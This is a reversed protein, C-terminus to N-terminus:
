IPVGDFAPQLNRVTRMITTRFRHALTEATLLNPSQLVLIGLNEDFALAYTDAIYTRFNFDTM